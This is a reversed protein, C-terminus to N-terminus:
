AWEGDDNFLIDITRAREKEDGIELECRRRELICGKHTGPGQGVARVVDRLPPELYM